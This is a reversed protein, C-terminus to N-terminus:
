NRVRLVSDTIPQIDNTTSKWNQDFKRSNFMQLHSDIQSFRSLKTRHFYLDVMANDRVVVMIVLVNILGTHQIM